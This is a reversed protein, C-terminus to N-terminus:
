CSVLVHQIRYQCQRSVAFIGEHVKRSHLLWEHPVGMTLVVVYSYMSVKLILFSSLLRASMHRAQIATTSAASQQRNIRTGPLRSYGVCAQSEKEFRENTTMIFQGPARTTHPGVMPHYPWEMIENECTRPLVCIQHSRAQLLLKLRCWTEVKQAEKCTVSLAMIYALSAYTHYRLDARVRSNTFLAFM